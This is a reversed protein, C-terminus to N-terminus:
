GFRYIFKEYLSRHKNHADVILGENIPQSYLITSFNM